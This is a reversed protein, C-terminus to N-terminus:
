KAAASGVKHRRVLPHGSPFMSDLRMRLTRAYESIKPNAATGQNVLDWLVATTADVVQQAHEARFFFFRWEVGVNLEPHEIPAQIKGSPHVALDRLRYIRKLHERLLKTGKPKLGFGRRLVETVQSYRATRKTRWKEVIDKPLNIRELVASYFAELAIAAAMIAQMSAEFERELTQAKEDVAGTVDESQQWAVVRASKHAKAAALHGTALECWTPCVDFHVHLTISAAPADPGISIKLGGAPVAVTMGRSIFVGPMPSSTDCRM